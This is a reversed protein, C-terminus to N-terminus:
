ANETLIKPKSKNKYFDENFQIRGDKWEYSCLNWRKLQYNVKLRSNENSQWTLHKIWAIKQTIVKNKVVSNQVEQDNYVYSIDNDQYFVGLKFPPASVRYIRAPCFPEELYSKEDFIYNKLSLKFWLVDPSSEVYQIIKNIEEVTYIEDTDVFFVYDCEQMKLYQLCLGRADTEKLYKEPVNYFHSDMIQAARVLEITNDEAIEFDKYELFPVSVCSYVFKDPSESKVQKWSLLSEKVTEASNYSCFIIGWKNM